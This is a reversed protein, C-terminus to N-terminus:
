HPMCLRELERIRAMGVRDSIEDVPSIYSEIGQSCKARSLERLVQGMAKDAARLTHNAFIVMRYGMEYLDGASVGYYTTPIAVLPVDYKWREAFAKVEECTPKKSHVLILDAGAEAYAWGRELAADLGDGTIFAETRAVVVFDKTKKASQAVQIKDCFETIGLLKQNVGVAFSNRKPFCKDELCIGAIGAAEYLQTVREVNALDGFGEDVDALVPLTTAQAITRTAELHEAMSIVSADPLGKAASITFGSAWVGDFGHEEVHKASLGDHAEALITPRPRALVERLQTSKSEM